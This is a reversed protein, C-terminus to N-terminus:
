PEDEDLDADSSLAAQPVSPTPREGRPRRRPLALIHQKLAELEDASAHSADMVVGDVGIDRLCEVEWASPVSSLFVLAPKGIEGRLASLDMLAQLTLPPSLAEALLVADVPLDGLSHARETSLDRPTVMVRGLDEDKLSDLHIGGATLAIFDCGKQRLPGIADAGAEPLMVGWPTDGANVDDTPNSSTLLVGDLHALAEESVEEATACSALLLMQPTPQRRSSFGFGMPAPADRGLRELRQVLKSMSSHPTHSRRAENSTHYCLSRIRSVGRWMGTRLM